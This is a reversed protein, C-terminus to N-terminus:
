WGGVAPEKDSETAPRRAAATLPQSAVAVAGIRQTVSLPRAAGDCSTVFRLTVVDAGNAREGTKVGDTDAGVPTLGPPAVLAARMSRVDLVRATTVGASSFLARQGEGGASEGWGFARRLGAVNCDADSAACETVAAIPTAPSGFVADAPSWRKAALGVGLGLLLLAALTLRGVSVLRQVGAGLWGRRRGVEGLISASLDPSRVPARLGELARDLDSFAANTKPDSAVLRALRSKGAACITRNFYADLLSDAGVAGVGDADDRGSSGAM